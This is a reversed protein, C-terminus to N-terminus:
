VNPFKGTRKNNIETKIGNHNSYMITHSSNNQNPNRKHDLVHDIRTFTGLASLFIDLSWHRGVVSSAILCRTFRGM